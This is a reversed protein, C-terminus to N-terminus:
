LLHTINGVLKAGDRKHVLHVRHAQVPRPAPADAVAVPDHVLHVDDGACKTFFGVVVTM